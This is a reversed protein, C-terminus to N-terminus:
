HKAARRQPEASRFFPKAVWWSNSSTLFVCTSQYRTFKWQSNIWCRSFREFREYLQNWEAIGTDQWHTWPYYRSRRDIKEECNHRLYFEPVRKLEEMQVSAKRMFKVFIGIKSWYSNMFFNNIEDFNNMERLLMILRVENLSLLEMWNRSVEETM